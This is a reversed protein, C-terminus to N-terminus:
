MRYTLGVRVTSTITDRLDKDLPLRVEASPIFRGAHVGTKLHMEHVSRDLLDGKETMLAWGRVGVEALMTGEHGIGVSYHAVVETRDADGISGTRYWLSPGFRAATYIAGLNLRNGLCVKAAFTNRTFSEPSDYITDYFGTVSADRFETVMPLYVGGDLNYEYEHENRQGGFTLGLYLNGISSSAYQRDLWRHDLESYTYPLAIRLTRGSRLPVSGSLIVTGSLARRESYVDAKFFTRSVDLSIEPTTPAWSFSQAFAVSSNLATCLMIAVVMNTASVLSAKM